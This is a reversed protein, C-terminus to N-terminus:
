PLMDREDDGATLDVVESASAHSAATPPLPVPAAPGRGHSMTSARKAFESTGSWPASPAPRPTPAQATSPGFPTSVHSAGGAGTRGGAGAGAASAGTPVALPTLATHTTLPRPIAPVRAQGFPTGAAAAALIREGLVQEQMAQVIPLLKHSHTQFCHLDRAAYDRELRGMHAHYAAPPMKPLLRMVRSRCETYQKLLETSSPHDFRRLLARRAPTGISGDDYWPTYPSLPGGSM